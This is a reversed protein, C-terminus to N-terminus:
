ETFLSLLKKEGLYFISEPKIPKFQLKNASVYYTYSKPETLLFSLRDAHHRCAKKKAFAIYLICLRDYLEAKIFLVRIFLCFSEM